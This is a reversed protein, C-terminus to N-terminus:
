TNIFRKTWNKNGELILSFFYESSKGTFFGFDEVEM